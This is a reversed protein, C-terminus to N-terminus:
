RWKMALPLQSISENAKYGREGLPKEPLSLSSNDRVPTFSVARKM